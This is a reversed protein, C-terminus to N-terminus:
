PEFEASRQNSHTVLTPRKVCFLMAAVAAALTLFPFATLASGGEGDTTVFVSIIFSLSVLASLGFGWHALTARHESQYKIMSAILLVFSLILIVALLMLFAKASEYEGSGSLLRNLGSDELKGWINFLNFSVSYRFVIPINVWDFLSFVLVGAAGIFTMWFKKPLNLFDSSGNLSKGCDPCFATQASLEKGCHPCFKM